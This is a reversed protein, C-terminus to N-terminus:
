CDKELKIFHNKEQVNKGPQTEGKSKINKNISRANDWQLSDAVFRETVLDQSPFSELYVVMNERKRECKM